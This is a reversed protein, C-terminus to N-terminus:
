KKPYPNALMNDLYNLTKDKTIAARAAARRAAADALTKGAAAALLGGDWGGTLAGGLGVGAAGAIKASAGQAMDLMKSNTFLNVNTDSGRAKGLDKRAELRFDDRLDELAQLQEDTVADSDRVGPKMRNRRLTKVYTDLRNLVVDGNSNTLNAAQLHRMADIPRSLEEYQQLYRDFGPAGSNIADTVTPKLDLLQSAAAQGDSATGRARPAVMDGMFKRVNWLKGPMALGDKDAVANVSKLVSILPQQVTERGANDDILRALHQRIPTVDVPQEDSFAAERHQVEAANRAAEAAELQEPTGIVKQAYANRAASNQQELATFLNPNAARRQREILAIGPNGTAQSATLRVGPIKSEVLQVPGGKQSDELITQALKEADQPKSFLGLKIAEPPVQTATQAEGAEGEATKEGTIGATDPASSSAAETAASPAERSAAALSAADGELPPALRNVVSSAANGLKRGAYGLAAGAGEFMPVGLAGAGAGWWPNEGEMKALAGGQIAGSAMRTGLGGNGVLLNTGAQVARGATGGLAAAAEGGAAALLPNGIMAGMVAAETGALAKGAPVAYPHQAAIKKDQADAAARRADFDLSTGALAHKLGPIKSAVFLAGRHLENQAAEDASRGFEALNGLWTGQHAHARMPLSSDEEHGFVNDFEATDAKKQAPHSHGEYSDGFMKDFEETGPPASEKRDPSVSTGPGAFPDDGSQLGAYQTAVKQPYAMTEPNGWKTRDTGSNYARLADPVDGYRDLNERLVRAGGYISQVPDHPDIGLSQATAPMIQMHGVAGARSKVDPDGGPDEVMHVARLLTPDVGWYKGAREYHQDLNDAM